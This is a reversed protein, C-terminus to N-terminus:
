GLHRFNGTSGAAKKVVSTGAPNHVDCCNAPSRADVRTTQVSRVGVQRHRGPALTSFYVDTVARLLFARCAVVWSTIFASIHCRLSSLRICSVEVLLLPWLYSVEVLVSPTLYSMKTVFASFVVGWDTVFPRFVVGWGNVSAMFVFGWTIVFPKLFTQRSGGVGGGGWFFFFFFFVASLESKM